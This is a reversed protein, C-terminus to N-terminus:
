PLPIYTSDNPVKPFQHARWDQKAKELREKSHSVFNWFMYHEEALPEGGFILLQTNAPIMLSCTNETKAILMQGADILEDNARVSGKVVVFAIEGQLEGNIDFVSDAKAELHLMFLPSFIPTPSQYGFAEGAILTIDLDNIKWFPLTEKPIHHFSPTREEEHAPLAIWVQYGHITHEKETRLHEPTRETHSVGSGAVMLNVSGPLIVQNAGTSDQHRIEGELLYTLTCLGIHPHQDVDVYVGNGLLSPGMHDIFCFPGVFRKERFPLLRGVLFHGIDRSREAVLFANNAM